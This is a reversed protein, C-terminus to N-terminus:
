QNKKGEGGVLGEDIDRCLKTLRITYDVAMSLPILLFPLYTFFLTLRQELNVLNPDNLVTALCAWTTTSSSAGYIALLPQITTTNKRLLGRIGLVFVPVQFLMELIIFSQFWSFMAQNANQLLYDDKAAFDHTLDSTPPHRSLHQLTPTNSNLTM